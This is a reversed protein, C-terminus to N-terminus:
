WGRKTVTYGESRHKYPENRDLHVIVFVGTTEARLWTAIRGRVYALPKRSALLTSKWRGKPRNRFSPQRQENLTVYNNNYNRAYNRNARERTEVIRVLINRSIESSIFNAMTKQPNRYVYVKQDFSPPFSWRKFKFSRRFHDDRSNPM